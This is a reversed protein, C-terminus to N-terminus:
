ALRAIRGSQVNDRRESERGDASRMAVIRLRDDFCTSAHITDVGRCVICVPETM